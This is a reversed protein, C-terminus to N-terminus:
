IKFDQSDDCHHHYDKLVYCDIAAPGHVNILGEIQPDVGEENLKDIM